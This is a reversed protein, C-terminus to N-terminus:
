RIFHSNMNGKAGCASTHPMYPRSEIHARIWGSRSYLPKAIALTELRFHASVLPRSPRPDPRKNQPVGLTKSRQQPAPHLRQHRERTRQRAISPAGSNANPHAPRVMTRGPQAMLGLHAHLPYPLTSAQGALRPDAQNRHTGHNDLNLPVDLDEPANRQITDLFARFGTSRHRRHTQGIVNGTWTDLAAFLSITGHRTFGHTRREIQGPRRSWSELQKLQQGKDFSPSVSPWDADSKEESQEM